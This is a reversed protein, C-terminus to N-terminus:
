GGSTAFTCSLQPSCSRCRRGKEIFTYAVKAQTCLTWLERADGSSAAVETAQRLRGNPDIAVIRPQLAQTIGDLQLAGPESSSAAVSMSPKLIYEYLTCLADMDMDVAGYCDARIADAATAGTQELKV